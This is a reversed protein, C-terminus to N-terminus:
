WRLRPAPRGAADPGPPKEDRMVAQLAPEARRALDHARDAQDLLALRAVIGLAHAFAHAAIEAAAAGILADGLRDQFRLPRM